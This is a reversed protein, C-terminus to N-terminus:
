GREEEFENYSFSQLDDMVALYIQTSLDEATRCLRLMNRRFVYGTTIEPHVVGSAEDPPGSEDAPILYCGAPPPCDRLAPLGSEVRDLVVWKTGQLATKVAPSEVLHRAAEAFAILFDSESVQPPVFYTEPDLRSARMYWFVAEGSEGRVDAFVAKLWSTFPLDRELEYAEDVLNRARLLRGLWLSTEARRGVALGWGPRHEIARRFAKDAQPIRGEEFLSDGLSFWLDADRPYRRLGRRCLASAREPKGEDLLVQVQDLLDDRDQAM